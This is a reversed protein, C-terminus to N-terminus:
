VNVDIQELMEKTIVDGQLTRFRELNWSPELFVETLVEHKIKIKPNVIEELRIGTKFNSHKVIERVTYIKEFEPHVVGYQKWYELQNPTFNSNVCIVEAM